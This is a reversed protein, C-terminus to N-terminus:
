RKKYIEHITQVKRKLDINEPELEIYLRDILKGSPLYSRKESQRLEIRFLGKEPTDEDAIKAKLYSQLKQKQEPDFQCLDIPEAKVIEWKKQLAYGITAAVGTALTIASAVALAGIAFLAGLHIFFIDKITELLSLGLDSDDGYIINIKKRFLSFPISSLGAVTFFTALFPFGITLCLSTLLKSFGVLLSELSEQGAIFSHLLTASKKFNKIIRSLIYESLSFNTYTKCYFKAKEFLTQAKGADHHIDYNAHGVIWKAFSIRQALQYIIPSFDHENKNQIEALAKREEATKYLIIEINEKIQNQLNKLIDELEPHEDFQGSCEQIIWLKIMYRLLPTLYQQKLAEGLLLAKPEATPYNAGKFYIMEGTLTNWAAYSKDFIATPNSYFITAHKYQKAIAESRVAQPNDQVFIDKIQTPLDLGDHVFHKLLMLAFKDPNPHNKIDFIKQLHLLWDDSFFAKFDCEINLMSKILLVTNRAVKVEYKNERSGREEWFFEAAFFADSNNEDACTIYVPLDEPHFQEQIKELAANFVAKLEEKM